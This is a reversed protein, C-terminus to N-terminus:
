GSRVPVHPRSLRVQGPKIGDCSGYCSQNPDVDCSAYSSRKNREESIKKSDPLFYVLILSLLLLATACIIPQAYGSADLWYGSCVGAVGAGVGVSSELFVFRHYFSTLICGFCTEFGHGFRKGRKEPATIDSIYAAGQIM